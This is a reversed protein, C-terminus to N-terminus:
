GFITKEFAKHELAAQRKVFYELRGTAYQLDKVDLNEIAKNMKYRWYSIKEAYGNPYRNTRNMNNM